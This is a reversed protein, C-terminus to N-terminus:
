QRRWFVQELIDGGHHAHRYLANWSDAYNVVWERLFGNPGPCVLGYRFWQAVDLPYTYSWIFQPPLGFIWLAFIPAECILSRDTKSNKRQTAAQLILVYFMRNNNNGSGMTAVHLVKGLLHKSFIQMNNRCSSCTPKATRLYSKDKWPPLVHLVFVVCM